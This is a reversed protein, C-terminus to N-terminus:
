KEAHASGNRISPEVIVDMSVEVRFTNQWASATIPKTATNSTGDISTGESAYAM